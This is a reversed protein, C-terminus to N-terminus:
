NYMYVCANKESEKGVYIIVSYQTSNGTSYSLDRPLDNWIGCHTYSLGLSRIWREGKCTGKLLWLNTKLRHTQETFINKISRKLIGCVFLTM